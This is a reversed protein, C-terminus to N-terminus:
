KFIGISECYALEGEIIASIEEETLKEFGDKKANSLAYDILEDDAFEIEGDDTDDDMFGKREYFDYILDIIYYIDDDGVKKSVPAELTKRIFKVANDDDYIIDDDKGM